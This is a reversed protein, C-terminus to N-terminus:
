CDKLLYKVLRKNGHEAYFGEKSNLELAYIRKLPSIDLMAFKDYIFPNTQYVSGNHGTIITKQWSCLTKLSKFNLVNHYVSRDSALTRPNQKGLPIFPDCGGHVFICDENEYYPILENLFTVHHSPILDYINKRNFCYPDTTTYNKKQLYNYVTKDGGIKMWKEYRQFECDPHLVDLMLYDHNGGITIINEEKKLKSLLEIVDYNDNGSDIYDGLFIIQDEHGGTTRLPLIRSLILKLPYYMGHIDSIVYICSNSPRWKSM